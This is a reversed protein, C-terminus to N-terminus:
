NSTEIPGSSGDPYKLDVGDSITGCDKCLNNKMKGHQCILWKPIPPPHSAVPIQPGKNVKLRGAMRDFLIGQITMSLFAQIEPAGDMILVPQGEPNLYAILHNDGFMEQAAKVKEQTSSM